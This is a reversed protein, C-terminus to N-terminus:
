RCPRCPVETAAGGGPQFLVGTGTGTGLPVLVKTGDSAPDGLTRGAPLTAVEQPAGPAGTSAVRAAMLRVNSAQAELWIVVFETGTYVVRVPAGTSTWAVHLGLPDLLTGDLGVRAARIEGSQQRTWASFFMSAGGTVAIDAAAHDPTGRVTPDIAFDASVVPALTAAARESRPADGDRRGELSSCGLSLTAALGILECTVRRM